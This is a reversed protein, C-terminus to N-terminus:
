SGRDTVQCQLLKTLINPKGGVYLFSLIATIGSILAIVLNMCGYGIADRLTGSLIPGITLGASFILSNFGYLQAYPGNQGFFEPNSKDYREVVDSAEVISPSNLMAMGIGDLALLACYVIINHKVNNIIHDSPLRLPILTPVLYGFGLVATPKPGFRDVPWGTIPGLLLYPTDLAIFLLGSKLSSFGFVTNAETPVTADFTGLLTAHVLALLLAVPLRPNSFCYLIPMSNVIWHQKPPIQFEENEKPLLPDQETAEDDGDQNQEFHPRNSQGVQTNSNGHSLHYRAAVKKEIILVRM